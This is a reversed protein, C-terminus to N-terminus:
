EAMPYTPTPAPTASPRDWAPYTPCPPWARARADGGSTFERPAPPFHAGARNPLHLHLFSHPRHNGWGCSVSEESAEQFPPLGQVPVRATKCSCLSAGHTFNVHAPSHKWSGIATVAAATVTAM